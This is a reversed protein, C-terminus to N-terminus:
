RLPGLQPPPVHERVFTLAAESDAIGGYRRAWGGARPAVLKAAVRAAFSAAEAAVGMALHALTRPWGARRATHSVAAWTARRWSWGYLLCRAYLSGLSASALTRSCQALAAQMSFGWVTYTAFHRPIADDWVLGAFRQLYPSDEFRQQNTRAAGSGAESKPSAGPLCFPHDIFVARQAQEAILVASYIDPSVGGFVHGHRARVAQLLERSVLGHYLRPLRGLGRGLMHEVRALERRTDIREARNSASWVFVRAAYGDGFWRSTVGPWYYALGFRDGYAVVADIRERAAWDCVVELHPGILDDDGLYLVYDGRCHALASEFNQVVNWDGPTRQYTVRSLDLGRAQLARLLADDDSSDAVVVEARQTASLAGAICHLACGARNRTPVVISVIPNM